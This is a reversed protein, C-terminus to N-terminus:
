NNKRTKLVESDIMGEALRTILREGCTVEDANKLVHNKSNTTVSYGRGLVALPSLAQLQADMRRVHQRIREMHLSVVYRSRLTADNMTVHGKQIAGSVAREIRLSVGDIRQFNQIVIHRPDRLLPSRTAVLLRNHAKLVQERLARNLRGWAVHLADEFAEKRGVVLEAAASPTPARLDAVFDSITFDIEHGVASIVPVRSRAIARAVIEENFCWLDELSGGGRGVILVDIGGRENLLDIAAVIEAAAEEGQVRTPALVVHLNPFRRSIVNLIDRIAAGSPSTVLGVHQALLPLPKKRDPDFLGEKELSKKLKEFREQLAGKGSEELTRVIIQYNGGREYVTIEGHARVLIGDKPEFRLGRQNGRFLVASIQAKDDKLTFYLHGSSPKRLNSIEGEIWVEGIEEELTTRVRRTIESVQYVKRDKSM